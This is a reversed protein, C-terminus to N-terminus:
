ETAILAGAGILTLVPGSLETVGAQEAALALLNGITISKKAEQALATTAANLPLLRVEAEPRISLMATPTAEGMGLEASLPATIPVLQTASHWIVSLGLLEEEALAAIDALTLPASDAAHYSRLWALEIKALEIVSYDIVEVFGSVDNGRLRSDMVQRQFKDQQHHVGAKAPTVFHPHQPGQTQNEEVKSAQKRLFDPFPRGIGENDCCRAADTEVFDRSLQNFAEDGIHKRTLPFTEELAVLRAHNITNAHAKLGLLVRDIPGAFLEPDLVSPGDNITAIFSNQIDALSPM